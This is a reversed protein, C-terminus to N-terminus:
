GYNNEGFLNKDIISMNVEHVRNLPVPYSINVSSETDSGMTMVSMGFKKAIHRMAANKSLCVMYIRGIKYETVLQYARAFLLQGLKKGRYKADTTFAFEAVDDSISIHVTAILDGFNNTIGFWFDAKERTNHVCMSKTVYDTIKESSPTYGFRLYLDDRNLSQIHLAVPSVDFLRILSFLENSM